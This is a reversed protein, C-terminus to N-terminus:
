PRRTFTASAGDPYARGSCFKILLFCIGNKSLADGHDICATDAATKHSAPDAEGPKERAACPRKREEKDIHFLLKV